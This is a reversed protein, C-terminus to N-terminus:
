AATMLHTVLLNNEGAHCIVRYPGYQADQAAFPVHERRELLMVILGDHIAVLVARTEHLRVQRLPKAAVDQKEHGRLAFGLWRALDPPGIDAALDLDM